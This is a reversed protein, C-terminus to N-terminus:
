DKEVEFWAPAPITDSYGEREQGKAPQGKAPPPETAREKPIAVSLPVESDRKETAPSGEPRKAQNGATNAM